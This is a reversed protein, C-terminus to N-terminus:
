EAAQQAPTRQSRAANITREIHHALVALRRAASQLIPWSAQARGLKIDGLVMQAEDLLQGIRDLELTLGPLLGGGMPEGAERGALPEALSANTPSPPADDRDGPPLTLNANHGSM